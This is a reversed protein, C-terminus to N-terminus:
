KDTQKEAKLFSKPCVINELYLLREIDFPM